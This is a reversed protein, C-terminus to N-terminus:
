DYLSRIKILNGKWIWRILAPSLRQLIWSFKTLGTVLITAQNKEVGRLIVRACESAPMMKPVLGRMKDRNLRILKNNEAIPTDILGPCVVSVKVGLDEGEIRLSNSLGVIAYKSAVYSIQGPTPIIGALSATNVIHGFGQKVMLPYAAHVGNIVGYLNIDILKKWDDYEFFRAEGMISIGANNFLYDLRGHAAFTDDVMKKVANFDRVDLVVAKASAGSRTLAQVTEHLLSENMDAMILKAGSQALQESVARGIGSASGTVIVIKDKFFGM